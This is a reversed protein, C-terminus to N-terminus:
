LNNAYRIWTENANSQLRIKTSKGAEFRIRSRSQVHVFSNNVVSNVSSCLSELCSAFETGETNETTVDIAM